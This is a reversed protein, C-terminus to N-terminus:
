GAMLDLVDIWHVRGKLKKGMWIRWHLRVFPKPIISMATTQFDSLYAKSEETEHKARKSSGEGGETEAFWVRPYGLMLKSSVSFIRFLSFIQSCCFAIVSLPLPMYLSLHPWSVFLIIHWIILPSISSKQPVDRARMSYLTLQFVRSPYVMLIFDDTKCIKQKSSNPIDYVLSVWTRKSRM